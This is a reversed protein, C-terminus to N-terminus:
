IVRYTEVAKQVIEEWTMLFSGFDKSELCEENLHQEKGYRGADLYFNCKGATEINEDYEKDILIVKYRNEGNEDTGFSIDPLYNIMRVALEKDGRILRASINPLFLTEDNHVVTGLSNVYIVMYVEESIGKRNLKYIYTDHPLWPTVFTYKKIIEDKNELERYLKIFLSGWHESKGIIENDEYIRKRQEINKWTAYNIKKVWEKRELENEYYRVAYFAFSDYYDFWDLMRYDMENEPELFQDTIGYFESQKTIKRGTNVSIGMIYVAEGTDTPFSPTIFDANNIDCINEPKKESMKVYVLPLVDKVGKVVSEDEMLAKVYLIIWWGIYNNTREWAPDDRLTKIQYFYIQGPKWSTIFPKHVAIKKYPPLESMLKHKLGELVATRSKIEKPNVWLEEVPENEILKLVRGKIEETLHGYKWMVDALAYWAHYKDDDDEFDAQNEEMLERLAEEATRGARQKNIYSEKIDSAIDNQYLKTGWAGM